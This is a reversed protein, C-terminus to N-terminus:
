ATSGEALLATVLDRLPGALDPEAVQAVHAGARIQYVPQGPEPRYPPPVELHASAALREWRDADARGATDVAAHRVTGDAGISTVTIEVRAAKGADPQSM